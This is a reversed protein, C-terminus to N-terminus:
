PGLWDALAMVHVAFDRGEEPGAKHIIGALNDRGRETLTLVAVAGVAFALLILLTYGLIRLIRKLLIM